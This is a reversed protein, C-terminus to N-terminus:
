NEEKLQRIVNKVEELIEATTWKKGDDDQDYGAHDYCHAYDWGIWFGSKHNENDKPLLGYDTYTIGGHCDVTDEMEGSYGAGYWKHGAPLEVYACPHTGHSVICYHFGDFVGDDLVDIERNPKYVMDKM